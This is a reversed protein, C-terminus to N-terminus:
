TLNLGHYESNPANFMQSNMAPMLLSPPSLIPVVPPSGILPSMSSFSGANGPQPGAGGNQLCDNIPRNVVVDKIQLSPPFATRNHTLIAFPVYPTSPPPLIYFFISTQIFNVQQQQPSILLKKNEKRMSTLELSVM